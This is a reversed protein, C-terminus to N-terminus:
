GRNFTNGMRDFMMFEKEDKENLKEEKKYKIENNNKGEKYFRKKM